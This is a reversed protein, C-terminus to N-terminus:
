KRRRINNVMLVVVVAMLILALGIFAGTAVGAM